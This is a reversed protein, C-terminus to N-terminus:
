FLNSKVNVGDVGKKRCISFAIDFFIM